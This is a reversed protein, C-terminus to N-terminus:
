SSSRPPIARQFRWVLPAEGMLLSLLSVYSSLRLGSFNLNDLKFKALLEKVRPLQEAGIGCVIVHQNGTLRYHGAQCELMYQAIELLGTKARLESRDEVRGIGHFSYAVPEVTRLSYRTVICGTMVKSGDVSIMSTKKSHNISAHPLFPAVLVNKSRDNSNM